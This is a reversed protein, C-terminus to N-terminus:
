AAVAGFKRRRQRTGLVTAAVALVATAAAAIQNWHGPPTITGTQTKTGDASLGKEAWFFATRMDKAVDPPLKGGPYAAPDYRRKDGLKRIEQVAQAYAASTFTPPGAKRFQSGSTL